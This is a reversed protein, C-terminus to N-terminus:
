SFSISYSIILSKLPINLPKIHATPGLWESGPPPIEDRPVFNPVFNGQGGAAMASRPFHVPEDRCGIGKECASGFMSGQRSIAKTLM